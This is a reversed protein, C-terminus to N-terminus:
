SISTNRRMRQYGRLLAGEQLLAPPLDKERAPLGPPPPTLACHLCPGGGGMLILQWKFIPCIGEPHLPILHCSELCPFEAQVIKDRSGGEM